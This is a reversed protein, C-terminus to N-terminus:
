YRIRTCARYLVNNLTTVVVRFQMEQPVMTSSSVAWCIMAAWYCVTRDENSISELYQLPLLDQPIVLALIEEPSCNCFHDRKEDHTPAYNLAMFRASSDM